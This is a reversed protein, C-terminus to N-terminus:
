PMHFGILLYFAKSLFFLVSLFSLQDYLNLAISLFTLNVVLRFHVILQDFILCLIAYYLQMIYCLIVSRIDIM